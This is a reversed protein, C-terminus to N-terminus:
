RQGESLTHQRCSHSLPLPWLAGARECNASATFPQGSTMM